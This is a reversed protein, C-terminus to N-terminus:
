SELENKIDQMAEVIAKRFAPAKKKITEAFYPGGKQSVWHERNGFVPHRWGKPSDLHRPLSRQDEPLANSNVVIRVGKATIQLRTASAISARLGRGKRLIRERSRESRAKGAKFRSRQMGGGGHSSTVQLERVATKVDEVAPKGAETIRQRLKKRLDDRGAQRFRRALERYADVNQAALSLRIPM